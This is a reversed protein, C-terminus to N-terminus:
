TECQFGGSACSLRIGECFDLKELHERMNKGPRSIKHYTFNWNPITNIEQQM